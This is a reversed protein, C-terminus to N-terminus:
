GRRNRLDNLVSLWFNAGETDATYFGLIEKHGSQNIGLIHYVVKQLVKGSDRSKFYMADLFIIPYISELPRSRWQTIVPILKDTVASLKAASIEVDYMQSLHKQIDGYSMGISFLDLIKEDLAPNLVTQRKKVIDPEFSGDRDRPTELEFSGASHQVTKSLKGNRRNKNRRTDELHAEIEGELTAELASKILPTLLGDKGLLSHGSRIEEVIRSQLQEMDLKSLESKAKETSMTLEGSNRYSIIKV